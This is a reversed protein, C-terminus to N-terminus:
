HPINAIVTDLEHLQLEVPKGYQPGGAPRVERIEETRLELEAMHVLEDHQRYVEQWEENTMAVHNM